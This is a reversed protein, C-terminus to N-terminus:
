FSKYINIGIIKDAQNYYLNFSYKKNYPSTFYWSSLIAISAGAVVDEIYHKNAHIRSYGAFSALCYLPISYKLGYRFHIFSAGSFAASTHGSPFSLYDTGDPRLKQTTHKLIHTISTTVIYSKLFSKFGDIDNMYCTSSIATLPMAVQIVDGIKREISYGFM